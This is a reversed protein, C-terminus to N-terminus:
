RTGKISGYVLGTLGNLNAPAVIIVPQGVPISSSAAKIFTATLSSAAFRMTGISTGPPSQIDFDTQATPAAATVTPSDTINGQSDTLSAPITWGVPTDFWAIAKNVQPSPWSFAFGFPQGTGTASSTLNIGSTHGGEGIVNSASLFYTYDTNPSVSADDYSTAAAPITAILSASAFSAGSGAARYVNYGTVNDNVSNANWTLRNISGSASGSLGTPTAPVGGSGTGFGGGSPTITYATVTSLDEVMIDFMNISQFKLYLTKGIYDAPLTYKFIADGLFAFQTGSAHAGITSGNMGRWLNTLNYNHTSTLTPIEFAIFEGDVYTLNQGAAADVASAESALEGASMALNVALTHATDPNTGVYTALTASLKGM